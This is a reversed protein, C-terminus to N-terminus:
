LRRDEHHGIKVDAHILPQGRREFPIIGALHIAAFHHIMIGEFGAFFKAAVGVDIPVANGVAGVGAGM